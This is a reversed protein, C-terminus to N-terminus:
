FRAVVSTSSVVVVEACDVERGILTFGIGGGLFDGLAAADAALAAAAARDMPEFVGVSKGCDRAKLFSISGMVMAPLMWYVTLPDM